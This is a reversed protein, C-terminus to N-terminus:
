LLHNKSHFGYKNYLICFFAIYKSALKICYIVSYPFEKYRNCEPRSQEGCGREEPENFEEGKGLSGIEALFKGTNDLM